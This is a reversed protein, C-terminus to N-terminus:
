EFYLDVRIRVGTPTTTYTPATIKIEITDGAAIAQSLGTSYGSNINGNAAVSALAVSTANNIWAVTTHTNAATDVTGTVTITVSAERLICAIPIKIYRRNATTTLAADPSSGMYYTTGSAPNSSAGALMVSFRTILNTRAAAATSAGTGGDTLPVDTGGARYILNGEVSIDGAGTRAVTTDSANGINVATFQPSDGTGLGLNTRSTAVSAVDSLNNAALMDGSGTGAGITTRVAAATTDDLITRAFSTCTIEEVDGAGATSRGLVKDTASVNQMKAYTVVDNDITWTTGGGSVTIDGYDGDAVSAGGIIALWGEITTKLTAADPVVPSVVDNFNIEFKRRTTNNEPPKGSARVAPVNTNNVSYNFYLVPESVTMQIQAQKNIEFVTYGNDITISITGNSLTWSSM